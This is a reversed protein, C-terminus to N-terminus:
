MYFGGNLHVVQGTIYASQKSALFLLAETVEELKGFRGLPIQSKIGEQIKEPLRLLMGAEFYGLTLANVTIGKGAVEKAVAKTLGFLGAKAASYNSTGFVGVQGVVSSINIIRGYERERMGKIVARTCKFAGTLCVDLVENWTEDTMKWITSDRYVCANNVLVDIKGFRKVSLDVMEDVEQTSRVDARVAIGERGIERVEDLVEKAADESRSYNVVVNAGERACALVFSKGLGRAGGTVMAVQDKLRM